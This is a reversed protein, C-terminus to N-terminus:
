SAMTSGNGLYAMWPTPLDQPAVLRRECGVGRILARFGVEQGYSRAAGRSQLCNGAAGFADFPAGFAVRRVARHTTIGIPLPSSFPGKQRSAPTCGVSCHSRREGDTGARRTTRTMRALM